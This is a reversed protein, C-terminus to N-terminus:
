DDFMSCSTKCSPYPGGCAACGEPIDDNDDDVEQADYVEGNELIGEYDCEPCYVCERGPTSSDCLEDYEMESDCIPCKVNDVKLM